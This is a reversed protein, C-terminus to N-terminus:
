SLLPKVWYSGDRCLQFITSTVGPLCPKVTLVILNRGDFINTKHLNKTYTGNDYKSLGAGGGKLSAPLTLFLLKGDAWCYAIVKRRQGITTLKLTREPVKDFVFSKM